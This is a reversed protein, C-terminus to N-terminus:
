RVRVRDALETLTRSDTTIAIADHGIFAYMIRAVGDEDYLIRVDINDIVTDEFINAGAAIAPKVFSSRPSFLPLLDEEISKEWALMGAFAHGYSRTTLLLFPTNEDLVHIGLVYDEALTQLFTIPVRAQITELFDRSGLREITEQEDEESIKETLYLEVMSGLSFFTNRRVSALLEIVNRARVGTVDVREQAEIFIFSSTIQQTTPPATNLRYAYYSGLAFLSAIIVFLIALFVIVMTKKPEEEIEERPGDKARRNSEMAAIRTLSTKQDRVLHQIDDKFTHVIAKNKSPAQTRISESKQVDPAAKLPEPTGQTPESAENKETPKQNQNQPM